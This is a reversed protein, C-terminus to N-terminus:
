AAAALWKTHVLEAARAALGRNIPEVPGAQHVVHIRGGKVYCLGVKRREFEAVFQAAIRATKEPLVVYSHRAFFTNRFAQHMADRWRTLKAEFAFLVGSPDLAVVDARGTVYYFEPASRLEGWPADPGTLGGLFDRVLADESPYTDVAAARQTGTSGKRRPDPQM